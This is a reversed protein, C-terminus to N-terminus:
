DLFAREDVAMEDLLDVGGPCAVVLTRDLGPRATGGDQRIEDAERDGHMVALLMNRHIDGLIHHAVLEALERQRPSELSVGRALFGRHLLSPIVISVFAM